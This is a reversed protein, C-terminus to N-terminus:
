KISFNREVIEEIVIDPKFLTLIKEVDAQNYENWIYVAKNFNESIFPELAVFFSDRFIVATLEASSCSVAVPERNVLTSIGLSRDLPNFQACLKNTGLNRFSETFPQFDLLMKTLDGCQNESVACSRNKEATFTFDKRFEISPFLQEIKDAILLYAQYAGYETWHTDSQYYLSEHKQKMLPTALDLLERNNIAPYAAQLQQLRSTGRFEHWSDMMFEPYVSQKNPPIVLLYEIGRDALWQRKAEYKEKWSEIRIESVPRKGAFDLLLESQGLFYWDERGQHTNTVEATINFRKRVERQYRYILFDRFGFHDELYTGVLSFYDDINMLSEPFAPYTSLPRKETFSYHSKKSVTMKLAPITIIALFLVILTFYYSKAILSSQM